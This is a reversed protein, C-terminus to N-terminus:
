KLNYQFGFAFSWWRPFSKVITSQNYSTTSLRITPEVYFNIKRALNYEFGGGFVLGVHYPKVEKFSTFITYFKSGDPEYIEANLMQSRNIRLEAGMISYLNFQNTYAGFMRHGDYFKYKLLIPVRLQKLTHTDESEVIISNGVVPKTNLQDTPVIALGLATRYLFQPTGKYMEAILPRKDLTNITQFQSYSLGLGTEISWKDTLDFNINAGYAYVNHNKETGITEAILSGDTIMSVYASEPAYFLKISPNKFSIRNDQKIPKRYIIRNQYYIGPLKSFIRFLSFGKYDLSELDKNASEILPNNSALTATTDNIAKSKPIIQGSKLEKKENFSNPQFTELFSRNTGRTSNNNHAQNITISKDNLSTKPSFDTDNKSNEDTQKIYVYEKVPIYVKETKSVYVTDYLLKDRFVIKEIPETNNFNKTKGDSLMSLLVIVATFLVGSGIKLWFNQNEVTLLRKEILGIRLGNWVTPPPIESFDGLGERFAKDIETLQEKKM